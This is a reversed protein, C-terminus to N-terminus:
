RAGGRDGGVEHVEEAGQEELLARAAAVDQARGDLWVGFRDCSFEPRYGAGPFRRYPLKAFGLLAMLTFLAGLLITLEFGVVVFPVHHTVPKGSVILDWIVSTRIALYFGGVLGTLGGLLTVFRVPSVSPSLSEYAEPVPVPTFVDSVEIGAAKAKEVAALMTDLHAFSGVVGGRAEPKPLPLM